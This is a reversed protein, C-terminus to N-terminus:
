SRGNRQDWGGVACIRELEMRRPDSVGLFDQGALRNTMSSVNPVVQLSQFGHQAALTVAAAKLVVHMSVAFGAVLPLAGDSIM